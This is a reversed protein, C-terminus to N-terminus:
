HLAGPTLLAEIRRLINQMVAAGDFDCQELLADARMAAHTGSDEGHQRILEHACAWLEHDSVAM